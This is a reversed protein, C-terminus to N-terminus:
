MAVEMGFNRSLKVLRVREGAKVWGRVIEVSDDSSGDDVYIVEYTVDIAGLATALRRQLEPLNEAENLVPVVVSILPHETMLDSRLAGALGSRSPRASAARVPCVRRGRRGPGPRASLVAPDREPGLAAPPR